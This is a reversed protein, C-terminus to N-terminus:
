SQQREVKQAIDFAAVKVVSAGVDDDAIAKHAIDRELDALSQDLRHAGNELLRQVGGDGALHAIQQRTRGELVELLAEVVGLVASRRQESELADGDDTVARGVAGGDLVRNAHGRFKGAGAEVLLDLLLDLRRAVCAAASYSARRSYAMQVSGSMACRMGPSANRKGPWPECAAPM